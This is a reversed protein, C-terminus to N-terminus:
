GSCPSASTTSTATAPSRCSRSTSCCRRARTGPCASPASSSTTATCRRSRCSHSTRSRCRRSCACSRTSSPERGLRRPGDQERVRRRAPHAAALRHDRAPAVARDRRQPRRRPDAGRGRDLRGHGHQAHVARPRAHRRPHVQAQAHPLLPLRRRDHHGARARRAPRRDAPRPQRLRRRPRALGNEVHELQDEFVQKTEYLLRGILTSKGDDVSGATAVRLLESTKAPESIAKM